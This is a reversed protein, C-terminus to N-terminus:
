QQHHKVENLRIKEFDSKEPEVEKKGDEDEFTAIEKKFNKVHDLMEKIALDNQLRGTKEERVQNPQRHHPSGETQMFKRMRKKKANIVGTGRAATNFQAQHQYKDTIMLSKQALDEFSRNNIYQMAKSDRPGNNGKKSYRPGYYNNKSRNRNHHHSKKNRM